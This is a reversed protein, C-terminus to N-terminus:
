KELLKKWEHKISTKMSNYSNYLDKGSEIDNNCKSIAEKISEPLNQDYIADELHTVLAKKTAPTDKERQDTITDTIASHDALHAWTIHDVDPTIQTDPIVPTYGRDIRTLAYGYQTTTKKTFEFDLGMGERLEDHLKFKDVLKQLETAGINDYPLNSSRKLDLSPDLVCNWDGMLLSAYTVHKDLQLFYNARAKSDSPAYCSLVRVAHTHINLDVFTTRGSQAFGHGTISVSDADTRVLIATGGRDSGVAKLGLHANYGHFKATAVLAPLRVDGVAINTEQLCLIDIKLFHALNLLKAWIDNSLVGNVNLSVLHLPPGEGEYGLTHDWTYSYIPIYALPLLKCASDDAEQQARAKALLEREAEASDRPPGKTWTKRTSKLNCLCNFSTHHKCPKLECRVFLESALREFIASHPKFIGDTKIHFDLASTYDFTGNPPVSQVDCHLVNVAVKFASKRQFAIKSLTFGAYKLAIGLGHKCAGQDATAEASVKITLWSGVPKRATPRVQRMEAESAKSVKFRITPETENLQIVKGEVFRSSPQARFKQITGIEDLLFDPCQVLFPGVMNAKSCTVLWHKMAAETSTAGLLALLPAVLNEVVFIYGLGRKAEDAIM